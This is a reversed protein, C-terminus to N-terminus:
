QNDVRAEVVAQVAPDVDALFDYGTLAEITDVSVRFMHWDAAKEILANDNPMLVAIVRTTATVAEPGQGVADLVVIVKFTQDPVVVGAGITKPSAAIVGGSVIFLEKGAMALTRADAELMEWPGQNNNPAQPVMNTLYFTQSNAAATLTRDGSPCMHGRDYGSGVFDALQAQPLTAPLTDDPRFDNQRSFTGLYSANLEWSVWNPIKRGSNYSVVYDDKVSLYANPDDLSAPAPLGLTTHKSVDVGHGKLPHQGANVAGWTSAAGAGTTWDAKGRANNDDLRQISSGAATAGTGDIDSVAAAIFEADTYSAQAPTWKGAAGVAAAAARTAATLTTTSADTVTLVNNTATLGADTSWFDYATDYNGAYTAAPQDAPSTLETTAHGPNCATPAAVTGANLHVVLLDNRHVVIPPFAFALEGAATNGTRETLTAGGISGDATVRLEILDCGGTVNANLENLRLQAVVAYAAFSATAPAAVPSGALDTVTAAITAQYTTGLAQPSTTLTITRGSVAAATATLGHDFTFQSGDAKVTSPQVNRSLMLRLRTPSQSVANVVVPAPCGSLTVDDAAYPALQAAAAFRMLPARRVTVQCGKAMDVADVLATPARLQLNPDAPLGATALTARVFGTGAAVLGGSLTGTLTVLESDYSAIASAVDTAASLDQVLAGVDAGTASRAYGTVGTARPEASVTAKDTITFDVVDGVAPAPSLTAPDVAILLAPGVQEAQITFGAPDSGLKPRVYTITAHHISLSLNAGDAAARAEAIGDPGGPEPTRAGGCAAIWGALAIALHQTRLM